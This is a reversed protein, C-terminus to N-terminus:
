KVAELLIEEVGLDFALRSLVYKDRIDKTARFTLPIIDESLGIDSATKPAGIKDLLAEIEASPPLEENLIALIEDWHALIDELRKAHKAKDYKGEKAELAIMSEAGKGLFTRLTESWAGYDFARVSALAKEKDPTLTKLKDYMKAAYLTGVACQIGHLDMPTDFSVARMDWVHSFYHEVGSAPRSLGAYKMAVGGLVLGDFVALAANKDGKLLGDAHSVCTSLAQRVLSAVEECYYEGVLLHAIRWEALSVYKALMDGLGALKMRAPASALLDADGVILDASRSPLSIKLGDRTMSSADSAYGDMSPATGVIVYLKGTLASVIKGIDNLVGSGVTVIADATHPYHMVAGGVSKEDPELAEEDFVHSIVKIGAENLLADVRAGGAPYTHKDALLYVTKVGKALLWTPLKNLVGEGSLVEGFFRHEKGCPCVAANMKELTEILTMKSVKRM